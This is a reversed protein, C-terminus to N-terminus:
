VTLKIKKLCKLKFHENMEHPRQLFENFEM